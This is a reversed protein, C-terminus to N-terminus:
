DKLNSWIKKLSKYEDALLRRYEEEIGVPVSGLEMGRVYNEYVLWEYCFVSPKTAAKLSRIIYTL